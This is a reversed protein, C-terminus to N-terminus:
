IPKDAYFDEKLEPIMQYLESQFEKEMELKDADTPNYYVMTSSISKHRMMDKLALETVPKKSFHAHFMAFGHRLRHSLNDKKIGYDLPIGAERYYEKLHYNFTQASLCRGYQNLFM